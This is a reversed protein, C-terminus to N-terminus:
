TDNKTILIIIYTQFTLISQHTTFVLELIRLLYLLYICARFHLVYVMNLGDVNTLVDNCVQLFDCLGLVIKPLGKQCQLVGLM